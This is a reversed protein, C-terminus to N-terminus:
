RFRVRVVSANDTFKRSKFLYMPFVALAALLLKDRGMMLVARKAEVLSSCVNELSKHEVAERVYGTCEGIPGFKADNNRLEM